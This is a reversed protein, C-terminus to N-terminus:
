SSETAPLAEIWGLIDGARVASGGFKEIRTLRGASPAPVDFTIGRILVEVLRDGEEVTDGIDVLWSSVRVTDADAGLEPLVVPTLM